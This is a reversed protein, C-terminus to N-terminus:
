NKAKSAHVMKEVLERPVMPTKALWHGGDVVLTEGTIYSAAESCLFVASQAIDQITGFRRLPIEQKVREGAEGPALRRMGETDGIPGPAIGVVRIGHVGWEAALNVTLADVGAKAASVHAQFPTGVYHLTASINLIVGHSAKLHEYSLRCMNFSGILDIEIVTRFGNPSLEEPPCLFNGAAGNVLVDLSGYHEVVKSIVNQCHEPDRVDGAVYFCDVGEEALSACAKQLVEERRGMIAVKAGHLGLSRAVGFCIGSGGGTVLVVKNKMLDARFPSMLTM